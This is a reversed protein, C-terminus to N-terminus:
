EAEEQRPHRVNISTIENLNGIAQKIPPMASVPRREEEDEKVGPAYLDKTKECPHARVLAIQM